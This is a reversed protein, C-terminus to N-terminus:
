LTPSLSKVCATEPFESIRLHCSGYPILEIVEDTQDSYVPSEPLPAASGADLQWEPVRRAPALLTVPPAVPDFPVASVPQERVVIEGQRAEDLCLGYNWPTTPHVEWDVGARCPQRQEASINPQHKWPRLARFSEGIRLSFVLPGRLVALARNPRRELRPSLPLRLTVVDGDQWLRELRHFTGPEVEATDGGPLNVTADRAWGPVRVLLPFHVPRVTRVTFVVEGRFPYETDEEVTVMDGRTGVPATVNSPAIIAAALGRDPTGMWAHAALKPWGQHLNATCCAFNPEFGFLNSDAGNSTWRRRAHSVLVQNPQQDYQHCWFDDTNAGPLANYALRELRDALAPEGLISLLVELSFLYEVVMCTETGQSPDLGALHEDAAIAGTVQGHFRDIAAMMRAPLARDALDGTQQWCVAGSKVAMVNNVGHLPLAVEEGLQEPRTKETSQFDGYQGAWDHGQARALRALDLLAPDATRAHLWHISLVLEPWRMRAWSRLPQDALLRDIRHMARTMAPVVRDDGTAEEWQSLVKFLVFQPWPDLTAQGEGVHADDKAGFWGDAHQHTLIHDIWRRTEALLRADDLLMALPLIGDLWYPGREWGEAEGGIWRSQAIDPWFEHLHGSIGAAQVRLQDLLWGRPRIRGLPLPILAPPLLSTPSSSGIM